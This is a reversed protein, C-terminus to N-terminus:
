AQPRSRARLGPTVKRKCRAGRAPPLPGKSYARSIIIGPGKGLPGEGATKEVRHLM